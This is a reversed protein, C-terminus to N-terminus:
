WKTCLATSMPSSEYKHLPKLICKAGSIWSVHSEPQSAATKGRGSVRLFSRETEHFLHLTITVFAYTIYYERSGHTPNSVSDIPKSEHKSGIIQRHRKRNEQVSKLADEFVEETLREILVNSEEVLHKYFLLETKHFECSM